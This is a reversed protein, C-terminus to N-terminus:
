GVVAASATAAAILLGVGLAGVIGAQPVREVGQRRPQRLQIRDRQAVRQPPYPTANHRSPGEFSDAPPARHAYKSPSAIRRHRRHKRAVRPSRRRTELVATTFMAAMAETVALLRRRGGANGSRGAGQRDHGPHPEPSRRSSRLSRRSGCSFRITISMSISSGSRTLGQLTRVVPLGLGQAFGAEFYVGGRQNTFDAVVFRSQRIGGLIEDLIFDNSPKEDVILVRYGAREVGATLEKRIDDTSAHFHMAIFAHPSDPNVSQLQELRAWGEPAITATFESNAAAGSIMSVACSPRPLRSHSVDHARRRLGHPQRFTPTVCPIAFTAGPQPHLKALHRLLRDAQESVALAPMEYLRQVDARLIRQKPNQRLWGSVTGRQVSSFPKEALSDKADDSIWYHGCRQCIIYYTMDPAMGSEGGLGDGCM